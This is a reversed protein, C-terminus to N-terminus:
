PVSVVRVRFFKRQWGPMATITLSRMETPWTFSAPAEEWSILDDSMEVIYTAGEKFASWSFNLLFDNGGVGGLETDLTVQFPPFAADISQSVNPQSTVWQHVIGGRLANALAIVMPGQDIGFQVTQVSRGPLQQLRLYEAVRHPETESAIETEKALFEPVSLSFADPFGRLPEWLKLDFFYHRLVATSEAPMYYQAAAAGYPALVGNVRDPGGADGLLTQDIQQDDTSGLPLGTSGNPPAGHGGYRGDVDENATLFASVGDFTAFSSQMRPHRCYAINARHARLNSQGIDYGASDPPLDLLPLWLGAFQHTFASGFFSQIFQHGGFSGPIRQWSESFSPELRKMPDSGLLGAAAILVVEDTQYDWTQFDAGSNASSAYGGRWSKEYHETMEPKWGLLMRQQGGHPVLFNQWNVKNVLADVLAAIENQQAQTYGNGTTMAGKCGIAGWVLLATDVPSADPPNEGPQGTYKRLGTRSELYRYYLGDVGIQGGSTPAPAGGTVGMPATTLTTLAKRAMDFAEDPTILGEHAALPFATLGFGTAAVSALDSFAERDLVLGTDPHAERIFYTLNTRLVFQRFESDSAGPEIPNEPLDADIFQVDDIAFEGSADNFHNELVFVLEKLKTADVAHKNLSWSARSGIDFPLVVETWVGPPLDVRITRFATHNFKDADNDKVEIKLNLATTSPTLSKVYFRLYEFRSGDFVFEPYDALGHLISFYGFFDYSSFDFSHAFGEAGRGTTFGPTLGNVPTSFAGTSGGFRNHGEVRNDFDEVPVVRGTVSTPPAWCSFEIQDFRAWGNPAQDINDVFLKIETVAARNFNDPWPLDLTVHVWTDAEPLFVSSPSFGNTGDFFFIGVPLAADSTKAWFSVRNQASLDLNVPTGIESRLLDGSDYIWQVFLSSEGSDPGEAGDLSSIPELGLPENTWAEWEGGFFWLRADDMADWPHEENAPTVLRLNDVYFVPTKGSIQDLVLSIAGVETGPPLDGLDWTVRVWKGNKLNQSSAVAIPPVFNAGRMELKLKTNANAGAVYVNARLRNFEPRWSEVPFQKTRVLAWNNDASTVQGRLCRRGKFDVTEVTVDSGWDEGIWQHSDVEDFTFDPEASVRSQGVITLLVLAAGTLLNQLLGTNMNGLM